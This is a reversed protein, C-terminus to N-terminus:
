FLIGKPYVHLSRLTSVSSCLVAHAVYTKVEIKDLGDTALPNAITFAFKSILWISQVLRLSANSLM